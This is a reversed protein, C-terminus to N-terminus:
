PTQGLKFTARFASPGVRIALLPNLRSIADQTRTLELVHGGICRCNEWKESSVPHVHCNVDIIIWKCSWRTWGSLSRHVSLTRQYLSLYPCCISFPSHNHNVDFPIAVHQSSGKVMDDDRILINGDLWFRWGYFWSDLSLKTEVQTRDMIM